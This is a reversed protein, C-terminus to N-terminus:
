VYRHDQGLCCKKRALDELINIHRVTGEWKYAARFINYIEDNRWLPQRSAPFCLAEDFLKKALRKKADSIKKTTVFHKLNGLNQRTCSPFIDCQPRLQIRYESM